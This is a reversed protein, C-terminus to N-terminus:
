YVRWCSRRWVSRFPWCSVTFQESDIILNTKQTFLQLLLLLLLLSPSKEVECSDESAGAPAQANGACLCLTFLLLWLTRDTKDSNKCDRRGCRNTANEARPSSTAWDVTRGKILAIDVFADRTEACSLARVTENRSLSRRTVIRVSIWQCAIICRVDHISSISVYSGQQQYHRGFM